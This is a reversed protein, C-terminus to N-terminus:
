RGEGQPVTRTTPGPNAPPPPPPFYVPRRGAAVQDLIQRADQGRVYSASGDAFLLNMNGSHHAPPEYLIVVNPGALDTLGTGLYVYSLHGGATLDAATARLNVGTAPTDGSRSCVFVRPELDGMLLVQDLTDPFRGGNGAAYKQLGLGIQRLNSVCTVRWDPVRSPPCAPGPLLAWGLIGVLTLAVLAYTLRRLRRPRGATGPRAYGLTPGPMSASEPAVPQTM